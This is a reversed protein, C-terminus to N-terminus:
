KFNKVFEIFDKEKLAKSYFWGQIEDCEEKELFEKQEKTEVGEAITKIDLGKGLAIITKTIAADKKNFPLDSIFSIDIKLKDLPFQKLYNLSSYGTGFEDVALNIGLKKLENLISLSEDTDRMLYNETLEIELFKPSLKSKKLEEDILKVIDDYKIQINSINVSITGEELIKEEQLKKMFACAKELVFKGIPIILKTEEAYPIFDNPYVIRLNKHNWRILAEAGIIRNQKIDIQPQYYVEFEENKIADNLEQKMIIKEFIESTMKAKYFQFQNKGLNKASYMATDAHKILDEDNLGNEPFISIGISITIDFLYQEMKVPERFDDLINQAIKKIHNKDNLNEMVIIFEDGGIRSITDNKRINKQLRKAVLNIIRDGISHGYTDNILKFNDIDIFFLALRQKLETAEEISKNLRAQLLLRNPLNTLPDHHALFEIKANSDKIKSIDSFLAVYNIIQNQKDKVVSINLWEPYIEGSKKRNWIEGRWCNNTKLEQYFHKYFEKDHKGSKLIKPNKNKVDDFSYGTIKTFAENVSIIEFRENTILIGETTNEFVIDSLQLKKQIKEEETIDKFVCHTSMQDNVYSISGTFNALIVEGNKKKLRLKENEIHKKELFKTFLKNLAEIKEELFNSFKEGIVEDKSYGTVEVWKKNVNILEGKDNLSQYPYPVEEYLFKFNNEIQKNQNAIESINTFLLKITTNDVVKTCIINLQFINEGIEIIENKGFSNSQIKNYITSWKIPSFLTTIKDDIKIDFLENAKNNFWYILQEDENDFVEIVAENLSNFTNKIDKLKSELFLNYNGKINNLIDKSTIVFYENQEKDYIVAKRIHDNKMKLVVDFLSDESDYTILNKHYFNEITLNTNIHKQALNVVDSESLIGLPTKKEFVLVSSIYNTSMLDLAEQITTNIQVISAKKNNKILEKAKINTKFIDQGFEYILKEQLISGLYENNEDLVIIRRIKNNLMLGLIYNVKRNVKTTILNKEAYDIAKLNLNIHKAYLLLIDRETIIGVPKKNNLLVFHKTRNKVMLDLIEQLTVDCNISDEIQSILKNLGM